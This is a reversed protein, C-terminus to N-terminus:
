YRSPRRVAVETFPQWRTHLGALLAELICAQHRDRIGPGTNPYIHVSLDAGLATALRAYTDLSPRATGARLRSIFGPDV